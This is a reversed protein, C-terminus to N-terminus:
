YPKQVRQTGMVEQREGQKAGIFDQSVGKLLRVSGWSEWCKGELRVRLGGQGLIGKCVMM